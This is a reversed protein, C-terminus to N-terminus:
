GGARPAAPPAGKYGRRFVVPRRDRSKKVEVTLSRLKVAGDGTSFGLVYQHRVDDLIEALAKKLDEHNSIPYYLGGTVAALLSLVDAYRYLKKGADNLEYPNGADLGLVYTPLHAEQVIARAGDMTVVIGGLVVLDVDQRAQGVAAVALAIWIAAIRIM